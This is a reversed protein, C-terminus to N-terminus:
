NEAEKSRCRREMEKIELKRELEVVRDQYKIEETAFQAM